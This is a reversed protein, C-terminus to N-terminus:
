GVDLRQGKPHRSRTFAFDADLGSWFRALDQDPPLNPGKNILGTPRPELALAPQNPASASAEGPGPRVAREPNPTGRATTPLSIKKGISLQSASPKFPNRRSILPTNWDQGPRSQPTGVELAGLGLARRSRPLRALIADLGHAPAGQGPGGAGLQNASIVIQSAYRATPM